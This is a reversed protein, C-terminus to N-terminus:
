RPLNMRERVADAAELAQRSLDELREAAVLAALRINENEAIEERGPTDSVNLWRRITRLAPRMFSALRPSQEWELIAELASAPEQAVLARALREAAGMPIVDERARSSYAFRAARLEAPDLRAQLAMEDLAEPAFAIGGHVAVASAPGSFLQCILQTADQNLVDKEPVGNAQIAEGGAIRM